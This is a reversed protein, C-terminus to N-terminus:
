INGSKGKLWGKWINCKDVELGIFNKEGMNYM